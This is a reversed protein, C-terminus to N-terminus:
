QNTEEPRHHPPWTPPEAEEWASAADEPFARGDPTIALGCKLCSDTDQIPSECRCTSSPDPLWPGGTPESKALAELHPDLVPLFSLQGNTHEDHAPHRGNGNSSPVTGTPVAPKM